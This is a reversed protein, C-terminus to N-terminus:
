DTAFMNLDRSKALRDLRDAPQREHSGTAPTDELPSFVLQLLAAL